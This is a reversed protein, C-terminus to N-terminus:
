ELLKSCAGNHKKSHHSFWNCQHNPTFLCLTLIILESKQRLMSRFKLRTTYLVNLPSMTTVLAVSLIYVMYQLLEFTSGEILCIWRWNPNYNNVEMISNFHKINTNDIRHILIFLHQISTRKEMHTWHMKKRCIFMTITTHFNVIINSIFHDTFPSYILNQLNSLTTLSRIWTLCM